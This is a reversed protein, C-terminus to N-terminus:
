MEERYRPTSRDFETGGSRSDEIRLVGVLRNKRPQANNAVLQSPNTETDIM